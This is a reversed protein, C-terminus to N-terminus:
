EKFVGGSGFHAPEHQLGAVPGATESQVRYLDHKREVMLDYARCNHEDHGVSKCFNCDLNKPTQVYKQLLPCQQPPHGRIRCLECWPGQMQALPNPAGSALYEVFVPCNDKTHGQAKCKICWIEQAIDKGKKIEHMHLTLNALQNQLSTMGTNTEALPSAQLKM